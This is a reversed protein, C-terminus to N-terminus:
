RKTKKQVKRNEFSFPREAALTMIMSNKKREEIRKQDEELMREYLNEDRVKEPIPKAKFPKSHEAEM